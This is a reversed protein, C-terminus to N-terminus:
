PTMVSCSMPLSNTAPMRGPKSAIEIYRRVMTSIPRARGFNRGEAGRASQFSRTSAKL